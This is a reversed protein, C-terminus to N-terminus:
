DNSIIGIFHRGLVGNIGYSNGPKISPFLDSFRSIIVRDVQQSIIHPPSDNIDFLDNSFLFLNPNYMYPSNVVAYNTTSLPNTFVIESCPCFSSSEVLNDVNFSTSRWTDLLGWSGNSRLGVDFQVWARYIQNSGQKYIKVSNSIDIGTVLYNNIHNSYAIDFSDFPAIAIYVSDNNTLGAPIIIPNEESESKISTWGTINGVGNNSYYLTGGAIDDGFFGSLSSINGSNTFFIKIEGDQTIWQQTARGTSYFSVTTGPVIDTTSGTWLPVASPNPNNAYLIDYGNANKYMNSDEIPNRNPDFTGGASSYGGTTMAEVVIDYERFPGRKGLNSVSSYNDEFAFPYLLDQSTYGSETFYIEQSPINNISPSRITIRYSLNSPINTLGGLGMQWSYKPSESSYIGTAITGAANTLPDDELRLSSITIDQVPNIDTINISGAAFSSSLANNNGVSYVRFYYTGNESPIYTGNTVNTPLYALVYTDGTEDDAIFPSTKVLVKFSQINTLSSITFSYNILQSHPSPRPVQLNLKLDEPSAFQLNNSIPTDTLSFGSEIQVFKNIDYELGNIEYINSATEKINIVRYTDWEQNTIEGISSGSAEIMWIPNGSVYYGTFNISKNVSINTYGNSTLSTNSNQFDLSQVQPRRIDPIDNSNLGSVLSSDYFYTPTLLSIQYNDSNNLGSIPADLTISTTSPTCVINTVRGGLRNLNRNSDYVQFVDGPRLFGATEIGAKFSISETELGETLLAWRGLRVAQGRSTCGFAPVEVERLGYKRISDVDEVYEIAPKYFNKKDNYRVIAITHRAKKASDSYNFDGEVVNANTFQYVSQKEIDSTAYIQGASYYTIGRFISTMSNVTKYAEEQSTLYLNCTFRPELGGYGDSVITDCYKSIQYLTFKDIFDEDIYSGLGYRKNTLLDYYCWVPNDTWQKYIKTGEDTEVTKFLGSWPVSEDYRKTIPNYNSPVKVKLLEVDYTRTPIQSFYEADFLSSM